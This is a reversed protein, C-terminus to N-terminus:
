RNFMQYSSVHRKKLIIVLAILPILSLTFVTSISTNVEPIAIPDGENMLDQVEEASLPRDFVCVEDIRGKFHIFNPSKSDSTKGYGFTLQDQVAISSLFLTGSANGFNYHRDVLETGNLYATNGSPGVVVVLHYWVKEELNFGSDFCLLLGSDVWTVYLKRNSSDAHGVEIIFMNDPEDKDNIGLYFIPQIRRVDLNYFYNFWFAISGQDLNGLTAIANQTINVFDDVGDFQLANGFVGSTWNAGSVSGDFGNIIEEAITGSTSNLNWYAVLGSTSNPAVEQIVFASFLLITLITVRTIRLNLM